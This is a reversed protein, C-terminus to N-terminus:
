NGHGLGGGINAAVHECFQEKVADVKMRYVGRWQYTDFKLYNEISNIVEATSITSMCAPYYRGASNVSFMCLGPDDANWEKM